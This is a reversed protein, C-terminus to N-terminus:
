DRPSPSTYLLCVMNLDQDFLSVGGPFNEIVAELLRIRERSHEMLQAMRGIAEALGATGRNAPVDAELAGAASRLVMAM